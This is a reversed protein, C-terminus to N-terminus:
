WSEQLTPKFVEMGKLAVLPLFADPLQAVALIAVAKICQAPSYGLRTMNNRVLQLQLMVFLKGLKDALPPYRQPHRFPPRSGEHKGCTLPFQQLPMAEMVLLLTGEPVFASMCAEVVRTAVSAKSDGFNGQGRQKNAHLAVIIASCNVSGFNQLSTLFTSIQHMSERLLSLQGLSLLFMDQGM